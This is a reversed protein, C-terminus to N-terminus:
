DEVQEEEFQTICDPCFRGEPDLTACRDCVFGSCYDCDDGNIGDQCDECSTERNM